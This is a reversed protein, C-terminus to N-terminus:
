ASEATYDDGDDAPLTKEPDRKASKSRSRRQQRPLTTPPPPSSPASGGLILEAFTAM